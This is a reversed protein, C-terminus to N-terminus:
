MHSGEIAIINLFFRGSFRELLYKYKVAKIWWNVGHNKESNLKHCQIALMKIEIGCINKLLSTELHFKLDM